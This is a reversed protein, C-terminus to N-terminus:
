RDILDLVGQWSEVAAGDGPPSTGDLRIISKPNAIKIFGSGDGGDGLLIGGPFFHPSQFDQVSSFSFADGLVVGSLSETRASAAAIIAAPETREPMVIWYDTEQDCVHDITWALFRAARALNTRNYGFTFSAIAAHQENLVNEAQFQRADMVVIKLGRKRLDDLKSGITPRDRDGILFVVKAREGAKPQAPPQLTQFYYGRTDSRNFVRFWQSGGGSEFMHITEVSEIQLQDDARQSPDREDKSDSADGWESLLSRVVSKLETPRDDLRNEVQKSQQAAWWDTLKREFGEGSEPRPHDDNWVTLVQPSLFTFPREAYISTESFQGDFVDPVSLRDPDDVIKLHRNFWAYMARRAYQNYGHPMDISPALFVQDPADLMQWLAQLQPFGDKAMNKTWDNASSLGMPQPAFLAAMEVNGTVTRLNCANECTCGGQMGTSVMAAAFAAKVRSDLAALIFTQTGGGSCGTVGIREPDVEDLSQVFDLARISNWTQLGMISQMRLEAQPSYFLWGPLDNDFTRGRCFHAVDYSIQQSDAYGVMDYHFVVCGMRALHVCHAQLPSRANSPDSEEKREIMRAVTPADNDLFRGNQFHGYPCLVCPRKGVAGKPRYLNGTVFFGPMSEFYVNLVEYEDLDKPSHMVANLPTRPLEPWLGLSVAIHQRLRDRRSAWSEKQVPPQFPFHDSLTRLVMKRDEVQDLQPADDQLAASVPTSLVGMTMLCGALCGAFFIKM